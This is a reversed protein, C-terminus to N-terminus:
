RKLRALTVRFDGGPDTYVEEVGFGAASLEGDIVEHRFKTSIETLIEEGDAFEITLGLAPVDVRQAGVSRLRMEIWSREEDFCAVHEFRDLDFNAGFETNIVALVNRDFAATVGAADDYAAVLRARDKVLDTGLLLADAPTMADALDALFSRRSAPDFNGITGGLFAILRRGKKPLLPLHAHFDGVVATVEVGYEDAISAASSVLVEESVDLAVFRALTNARVMADLLERTKESTGSGLEVLSDCGAAAIIEDAYADFIAQERRTPYYEPLRTIEDYLESGREDYLWIPSLWKPSSGLGARLDAELTARREESSLLREISFTV